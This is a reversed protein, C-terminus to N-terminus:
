NDVSPKNGRELKQFLEGLIAACSWLDAPKFYHMELLMIEPARYARTTVHGSLRRRRGSNVKDRVSSFAAAIDKTAQRVESPSGKSIINQFNGYLAKTDDDIFSNPNALDATYRSLGFDCLKLSYDHNLLINSPKIDRHIVGASHLYSIAHLLQFMIVKVHIEQLPITSIIVKRL